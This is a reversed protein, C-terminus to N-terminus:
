IQLSQRLSAEEIPSFDAWPETGAENGNVAVFYRYSAGDAQHEVWSIYRHGNGVWKQTYELKKGPQLTEVVM